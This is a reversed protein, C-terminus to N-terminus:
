VGIIQRVPVTIILVLNLNEKHTGVDVHKEFQTDFDRALKDM